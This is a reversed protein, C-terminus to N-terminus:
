LTGMLGKTKVEFKKVATKLAAKRAEVARAAQPGLEKYPSNPDSQSLKAIAEDEDFEKNKDMDEADEQSPLKLRLTAVTPNAEDRGFSDFGVVDIVGSNRIHRVVQMLLNQAKEFVEGSALETDTNEIIKLFKSM